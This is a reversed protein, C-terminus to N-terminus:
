SDQIAPFGQLEPYLFESAISCVMFPYVKQRGGTRKEVPCESSIEDQLVAGIWM